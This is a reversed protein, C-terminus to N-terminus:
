SSTEARSARMLAKSIERLSIPLADFAEVRGFLRSLRQALEDIGKFSTDVFRVVRGSVEPSLWDKPMEGWTNGVRPLTVSVERFREALQETSEQFIMRGRSMFGVHTTFSEIETLEHSSLLITTEDAQRLVGELIEDRVLPDLGSLPEDLILLQPRFALAGILMAKMRMGHSLKDLRRDPPLELRKRLENELARDWNSYFPRWAALYQEVTLRGPLKQNESVFGIQQFDLHSLRQSNKGLITAEGGDPKLINVLMKLTTTKGAGNAGILAYAAGKPVSLSVGHVADHKAFRKSLNVADIIM